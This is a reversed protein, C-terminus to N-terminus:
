ETNRLEDMIKEIGEINDIFNIKKRARSGGAINKTFWMAHTKVEAYHLCDYERALKLYEFFDDIKEDLTQKELINGSMLYYSIRKFIYPEGIAARGIMLADAGTEKLCKEASIEDKIDGNAIVPIKVADKVEKIIKWDAKGSYKQAVNRGHVTIASAGAKEIIKAIEVANIHDSDLGSRIKATVPLDQNKVLASIIDFIKKPRKLLASGAGQRMVKLDPCGFNIDIIDADIKKSSIVFYDSKQGFLQVAVPREEAIIAAKKLSVSNNHVLANINVMESTVLSCDHKKCLLRFPLSTVAAMPALILKGKIDINRIKM